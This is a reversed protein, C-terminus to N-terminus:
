KKNEPKADEAAKIFSSQKLKKSTAPKSEAATTAGPVTSGGGSSSSVPINPESPPVIPEEATKGSIATPVLNPDMASGMTSDLHNRLLSIQQQFGEGKRELIAKTAQLQDREEKLAAITARSDNLRKKMAQIADSSAVMVKAKKEKEEQVKAEEEQIKREMEILNKELNKITVALQVAQNETQNKALTNEDIQAKLAAIQNQAEKEIAEIDLQQQLRIQKAKANAALKYKEDERKQKEEDIFLNRHFDASDPSFIGDPYQEAAERVFEETKPLAALKRNTEPSAFPLDSRDTAFVTGSSLVTTFLLTTLITKKTM